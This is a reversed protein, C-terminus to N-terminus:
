RPNRLIPRQGYDCGGEEEELAKAFNSVEAFSTGIFLIRAVAALPAPIFFGTSTAVTQGFRFKAGTSRAAGEFTERGAM